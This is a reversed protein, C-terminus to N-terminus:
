LIRGIMAGPEAVFSVVLDIKLMLRIIFIFLILFQKMSRFQIKVVFNNNNHTTIKFLYNYLLPSVM